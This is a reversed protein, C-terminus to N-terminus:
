QALKALKHALVKDTVVFEGNGRMVAVTGSTPDRVYAVVPGEPAPSRDENEDASAIGAPVVAAVAAVAATAGAGRLFDRRTHSAM